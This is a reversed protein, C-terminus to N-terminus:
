ASALAMGLRKGASSLNKRKRTESKAKALYPQWASISVGNYSESRRKIAAASM